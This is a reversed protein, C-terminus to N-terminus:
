LLSNIKAEIDALKVKVENLLDTTSQTVNIIKVEMKVSYISEIGRYRSYGRRQVELFFDNDLLRPISFVVSNQSAYLRYNKSVTLLGAATYSIRLWCYSHIMNWDANGFTARFTFSSGSSQSYFFSDWEDYRPTVTGLDEWTGFADSAM